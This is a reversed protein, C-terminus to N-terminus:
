SPDTFLLDIEKEGLKRVSGPPIGQLRYAGIQVRRLRKVFFGFKEFLRRIERKRGQALHVELRCEKEAGVKDPIIKHAYLKEGDDEIGRLMVPILTQDFARNLVIRYRKIVGSSPHTLRHSLDGDNTLILLGESDKDLRGACFLRRKRYEKPLLDFVTESHHPDENSCLLGKPKHMALVLPELPLPRLLRRGLKVHDKFPDVKQGLVATKGNVTLRGETIWEEAERRSCLGQDALFKQLRVLGGTAAARSSSGAVAPLSRRSTNM